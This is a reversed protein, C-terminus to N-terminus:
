KHNSREEYFLDYFGAALLIWFLVGILICLGQEFPTM